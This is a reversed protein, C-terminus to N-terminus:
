LQNLEKQSLPRGGIQGTICDAHRRLLDALRPEERADFRQEPITIVLDGIVRGNPGWLPAAVGVAGATRQSHTCAYGQARIRALEKELIEPDTISNETLPALQTHEVIEQREKRPLFAMIAMGSASTYVPIWQNLPIFYRLPHSSEAVAAFMMELRTPDYLGLFTTENCEEVVKRMSKLAVDRIPFRAEARWAMRYFELGIRYRESETERDVLGENHLAALTRHVTTPPLASARALERVGWSEDQGDLM